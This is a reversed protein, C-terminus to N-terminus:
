FVELGSESSLYRLNGLIAIGLIFLNMQVEVLCLYSGLKLQFSVNPLHNEDSPVSPHSLHQPPKQWSCLSDVVPVGRKLNRRKARNKLTGVEWCRKEVEDKKAGTKNPSALLKGWLVQSVECCWTYKIMTPWLHDDNFSKNIGSQQFTEKEALQAKEGNELNSLNSGLCFIDLQTKPFFSLSVNVFSSRLLSHSNQM